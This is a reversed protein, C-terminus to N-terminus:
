KLLFVVHEFREERKAQAATRNHRHTQNQKGAGPENRELHEVDLRIRVRRGDDQFDRRLRGAERGLLHFTVVRTGCLNPEVGRWADVYDAGRRKIAQGKHPDAEFIADVIVEGVGLRRDRHLLVNVQGTSLNRIDLGVTRSAFNITILNDTWRM